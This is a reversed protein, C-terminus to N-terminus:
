LLTSCAGWVWLPYVRVTWSVGKQQQSIPRGELVTNLLMALMQTINMSEGM